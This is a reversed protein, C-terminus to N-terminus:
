TRRRQSRTFPIYVFSANAANLRIITSRSLSFSPRVCNDECTSCGEDTCNTSSYNRCYYTLTAQKDRFGRLSNDGHFKLAERFVWHTYVDEIWSACERLPRKVIITREDPNKMASFHVTFDITIEVGTSPDTGVLDAFLRNVSKMNSGQILSHKMCQCM